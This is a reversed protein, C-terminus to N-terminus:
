QKGFFLVWACILLGIFEPILSAIVTLERKSAAETLEEKPEEAFMPDGLMWKLRKFQRENARSAELILQVAAAGRINGLLYIALLISVVIENQRGDVM